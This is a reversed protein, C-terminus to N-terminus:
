GIYIAGPEILKGENLYELCHAIWGAPVAIALPITFSAAPFGLAFYLLGTIGDVNVFVGKDGLANEVEDRVALYINWLNGAGKNELLHKVYPELVRVRPDPAKYVRHGFGPFRFGEQLKAKVWKRAAEPSSHKLYNQFAIKNAGGHLQGSLAGMGALVASGLDAGTSIVTLAALAAAHFGHEAQLIMSIDFAKVELETLEKGLAQLLFNEAFSRGPNFPNPSEGRIHCIAAAALTSCWALIRAPRRWQADLRFNEGEPIHCASVSLMTRYLMLAPTDAPLSKLVNLAEEPPNHWNEFESKWGDFQSETPLEGHIVLYTVEDFNSHKALDEVDYGRYWLKGQEGDIKGITTEGAVLNEMGRDYTQEMLKNIPKM